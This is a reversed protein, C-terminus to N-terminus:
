SRTEKGVRREESRGGKAAQWVEAAFSGDQPRPMIAEIWVGKNRHIQAKLVKGVPPLSSKHAYLLVPNAMYREVAEDLAYPNIRDGARDLDWTSAYGSLLLGEGNCAPHLTSIDPVHTSIFSM